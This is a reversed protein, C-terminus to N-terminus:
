EKVLKLSITFKTGTGEKSEFTIEGASETVINKVIALGLGTGSSKTTFYPQFIKQKVEDSIGKGNDEIIIIAKSSQKKISIAIEGKNNGIAQIANKVINNIVRQMDNENGYVVFDDTQDTIIKIHIDPNKDFLKSTINIIKKLDSKENTRVSNKAFDSFMEAVNNLTDIQTILSNSVESLKRSFEPDNSKYAKELYQVNLKMPTLPNKIEHAIQKAIERWASERESRILLEASQELKNVMRNYENILIGIEDNSKWIIRENQQDIRIASINNKLLVLPKTLYRAFVVAIIISIIGLVVYINILYSLMIYYSRTYESQRAFYPLNVIGIPYLNDLNIPVYSSYYKIGKIEEETIYSLENNNFIANYAKPNVMPSVLNKEFIEPRSTAVLNGSRDYLNIDSFFVLSFKRLIAHLMEPDEENLSYVNKLKHQLEILVSNTKEMLQKELEERTNEKLYLLTSVAILTFTITLTALIFFQLRTKFNSRFLLIAKKASTAFYIVVGFIVFMLFILSYTFLQLTLPLLKKSVIFIKGSTNQLTYHKYGKYVTQKGNVFGENHSLITYYNYDGFKYALIDNDYIAFSFGYLNMEDKSETILLEPYGLGEPVFSTIFEIFIEFDLSKSKNNIPVRAIYYYGDVSTNFRFLTSDFVPITFESILSNFYERCNYVHGEPQIEIQEERNCSTIQINYKPLEGELYNEFIYDSVVFTTSDSILLTQLNPDSILKPIIVKFFEELDVDNGSGIKDAIYIQYNDSKTELTSNIILSTFVTQLFVIMLNKILTDTIREWVYKYILTLIIFISISVITSYYSLDFIIFAIVSTAVAIIVPIIVPIKKNNKNILFSSFLFYIGANIITFIIFAFGINRTLSSAGEFIRFDLLTTATTIIQVAILIYIILALYGFFIKSSSESKQDEIRNITLFIGISMLAMVLSSILLRSKTFIGDINNSLVDIRFDIASLLDTFHFLIIVTGLITIISIKTFVSCNKCKTELFTILTLFIFIIFILYSIICFLFSSDNSKSFDSKENINKDFKPIIPKEELIIVSYHSIDFKQSVFRGSELSVIKPFSTISELQPSYPNVKTNNWYSITDNDYIFCLLNNQGAISDLKLYEIRSANNKIYNALIPVATANSFSETVPGHPTPSENHTVNDPHTVFFYPFISIALFILAILLFLFIKKSNNVLPKTSTRNEITKKM